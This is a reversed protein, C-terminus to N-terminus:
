NYTVTSVLHTKTPFLGKMDSKWTHTEDNHKITVNYAKGNQMNYVQDYLENMEDDLAVYDAIAKELEESVRSLSNNMGDMEIQHDVKLAALEEEHKINIENIIFGCAVGAVGLTVLVTLIIKKM